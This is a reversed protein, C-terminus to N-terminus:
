GQAPVTVRASALWTQAHAASRSRKGRKPPTNLTLRPASVVLYATSKRQIVLHVKPLELARTPRQPFAALSGSGRQRFEAASTRDALSPATRTERTDPQVRARRPPAAHRRPSSIRLRCSSPDPRM